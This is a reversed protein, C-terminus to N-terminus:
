AEAARVFGGDSGRLRLYRSFCLHTLPDWRYPGGRLTARGGDQALLREVGAADGLIAATRIGADAIEPHAALIADAEDPTGSPHNGAPACAAVIFEDIMLAAGVGRGRGAGGPQRAHRLG